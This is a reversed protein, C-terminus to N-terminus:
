GNPMFAALVLKTKSEGFKWNSCDSNLGVEVLDKLLEEGQMLLMM